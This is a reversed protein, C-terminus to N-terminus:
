RTLWTLMVLLGLVTLALAFVYQRVNGTQLTRLKGGVWASGSAIANFSADLSARDGKDLNAVTYAANVTGRRFTADYFHDFYWKEAFLGRPEALQEPTPTGRGYKRWAIVAGIVAAALALGGALLHYEEGLLRVRLEKPSNLPPQAIELLHGLKSAEANWLPWGWAVSISFLALIILPITM